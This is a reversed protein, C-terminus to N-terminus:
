VLMACRNSETAGWRPENQIIEGMREGPERQAARPEVPQCWLRRRDQQERRISRIDINYARRAPQDVVQPKMPM